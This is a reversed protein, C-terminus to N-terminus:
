SATPVGDVVHRPHNEVTGKYIPKLPMIYRLLLYGRRESPHRTTRRYIPTRKCENALDYNKQDSM